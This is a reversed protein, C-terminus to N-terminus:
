EDNRKPQKLLHRSISEFIKNIQDSSSDPSIHIQLDIHIAPNFSTSIQTSQEIKKTTAVKQKPASKQPSNQTKKSQTSQAGGNENQKNPDAELLLMFVQTMKGAQVSGVEANRSFWANVNTRDPNNPDIAYVLEPPYIKHLLSKCLEPYKTNDRWDHFLQTPKGADDIIGFQIFAPM